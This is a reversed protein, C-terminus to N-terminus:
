GRSLFLSPYLTVICTCLIKFFSVFLGKIWLCYFLEVLNKCNQVTRGLYLINADWILSKSSREEPPVVVCAARIDPFCGCHMCQVTCRFTWVTCFSCTLCTSCSALHALVFITRSVIVFFLSCCRTEWDNGHLVVHM